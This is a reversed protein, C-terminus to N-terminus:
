PLFPILIPRDKLEPEYGYLAFIIRGCRWIHIRDPTSDNGGGHFERDPLAITTPTHEASGRILEMEVM